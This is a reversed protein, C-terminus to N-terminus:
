LAPDEDNWPAALVDQSTKGGHFLRASRWVEPGLMVATPMASYADDLGRRVPADLEDTLAVTLARLEVVAPDAVPSSVWRSRPKLVGADMLLGSGDPEALPTLAEINRVPLGAHEFARVLGYTLAQGLRHLPMWGDTLGSGRAAPLRWCDGLRHEGFTNEAPWIPSLTMLLTILIDHAGVEATPAFEHQEAGSLSDFLGAPRLGPGFIGQQRSLTEGIRRLFAVRDELRRSQRSLALQFARALAEGSLNRLGDADVQCPRAPDSSFVGGTFADFAALAAGGLGTSVQGTSSEHYEWDVEPEFQLLVTVFALDVHARAHEAREAKEIRGTFGAPGLLRDLKAHVDADSSSMEQRNRRIADTLTETLDKLAADHVTFQGSEGARARALLARARKRIEHPNRLQGAAGDDRLAAAAFVPNIVDENLLATM